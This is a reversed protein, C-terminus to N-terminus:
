EIVFSFSVENSAALVITGEKITPLYTRIEFQGPACYEGGWVWMADRAASESGPSSSGIPSVIVVTGAPPSGSAVTLCYVGAPSGADGESVTANHLDLKLESEAVAVPIGRGAVVGYALADGPGGPAGAAGQPGVPGPPGAAGAPGALGRPGTKGQPGRSGHNERKKTHKGHVSEPKSGQAQTAVAGVGAVLAICGFIIVAIHRM